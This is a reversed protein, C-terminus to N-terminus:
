VERNTPLPLHTYSVAQGDIALTVQYGARELNFVLMDRIAAEDEVVLVTKKTM